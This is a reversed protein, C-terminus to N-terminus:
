RVETPPLPKQAERLSDKRSSDIEGLIEERSKGLRDLELNLSKEKELFVELELSRQRGSLYYISLSSQGTAGDSSRAWVQIRNLGEVVPLASSFFGDSALRLSSARQGTSIARTIM